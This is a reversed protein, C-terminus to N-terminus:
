FNYIGQAILDNLKTREGKYFVLIFADKDGVKRARNTIKDAKNFSEYDGITFRTIGDEGKKRELEGFNRWNRTTFNEPTLYAGIQVKFVVDKVKVNGYKKLFLAFNDPNALDFTPKIPKAVVTTLEELRDFNINEIRETYKSLDKTNM